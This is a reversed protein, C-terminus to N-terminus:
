RDRPAPHVGHAALLDELVDLGRTHVWQEAAMGVSRAAEVNRELDDVFLVTAPDAGILAAAREFYLPEPKKAGIDCSYVSVDFLDDYGLDHRMLAARQAHQNTGLHVAWGASRLRGVLELSSPVQQMSGWLTTWLAEATTPSGHETLVADMAVLFDGEGRLAPKEAWWIEEGVREWDDGLHAQLRERWDDPVHQLVGDADLLVHEIRSEGM